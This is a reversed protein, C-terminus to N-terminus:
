NLAKPFGWEQLVQQQIQDGREWFSWDYVVVDRGMRQALQGLNSNPHFFSDRGTDKLYQLGDTSMWGLLVIGANQNPSGKLVAYELAPQGLLPGEPFAMEIPATPAQQKFRTFPGFNGACYVMVEGAALMTYAQTNGRVFAAGQAARRVYERTKEEGWYAWNAILPNPRVDWLKKGNFFPDACDDWTKPVKDTPVLNTNYAMGAVQSGVAVVTGSPHAIKPETGFTQSWPHAVMANADRFRTFIESQISLVDWEFTGAQMALLIREDEGVGTRAYEVEIGPYAAKFAEILSRVERPELASSFRVKGEKRAAAVLDEPARKYAAPGPKPAAVAAKEGAGPKEAPKEAAALKEAAAPKDAAPPPAPAPPVPTPTSTCAVLISALLVITAIRSM